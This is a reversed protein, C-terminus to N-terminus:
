LEYMRCEVFFSELFLRDVSCFSHTVKIDLSLDMFPDYTDSPNKCVTCVVSLSAILLV